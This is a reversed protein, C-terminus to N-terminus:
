APLPLDIFFTAGHGPESTLGARGGHLEAVRRVIALGLGSSGRTDRHRNAQYFREFVLAQEDTAVGPGSDSVSVRLAGEERHVEVAIRGGAPSVRLANDLLNVVAREILAADIATLPLGDPYEVRLTVGQSEARSAFRQVVDDVLEGLAMPEPEAQFGPSDIKALEALSDTLRKLHLANQLAREGFGARDAASMSEGKIGMTELQGILATLPTRLDHSVSAVMERRRADSDTVRQMEQKLRAFMERFAESLRGIEDTRNCYSFDSECVPDTKPVAVDGAFGSEKIRSVVRTLATLPRTLLAIVALTLLVSAALTILGAKLAASTAYGAFIESAHATLEGLRPVVYLWGQTAGGVEIPVAAVLCHQGNIDPDDGYIPAMSGAQRAERVPTLDVRYDNWYPRSEGASALVRGQDDLLYLGTNPSYFVYQHLRAGFRSPDTEYEAWVDPHMALIRRAFEVSRTYRVEAYFGTVAQYMVYVLAASTVLAFASLLMLVRARLSKM